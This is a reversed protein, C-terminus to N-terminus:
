RAEWRVRVFRPWYLRADQAVHRFDFSNAVYNVLIEDGSSEAAHARAGYCFVRKDWKVEPCRYIVIPSSWPGWPTEAARAMIQDSMGMHTYVVIYRKLGVRFSVSYDNGLGGALHGAQRFDAIWQGDRYFRWADFDGLSEAEVRAVVMQKDPLGPGGQREDTGYIFVHDGDRLVAAGFSLRRHGSFDTYPIRKQEVKWQEPEDLPNAVVGLWQAAQRFGFVGDGEREIQVLFVFLKGGVCTAAQIWFWGHGDAPTILAVPKGDAARRVVFRLKADRGHGDQVAVTNNVITADTRRGDRVKGVWTDSFLWLTRGPSVAVSSVGDGGIWGDKLQFRADWEPSARMEAPAPLDGARADARVVLALLLILPTPSGVRRAIVVANM